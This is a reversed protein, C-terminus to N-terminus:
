QTIKRGVQKGNSLDVLWVSSSNKGVQGRVEYTRGAKPLFYIDGSVSKKKTWDMLAFGDAGYVERGGLTLITEKIPIKRSADQVHTVPGAGQVFRYPSDNDRQGDIQDVTYIQAKFNNKSNVTYSDRITATAGQYNEPLKYINNPGCSILFLALPAPLNALLNM